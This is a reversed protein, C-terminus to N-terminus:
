TSGRPEMMVPTNDREDEVDIKADNIFRKVRKVNEDPKGKL